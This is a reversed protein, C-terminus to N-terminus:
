KGNKRINDRAFAVQIQAQEIYHGLKAPDTAKSISDVRMEPPVLEHLRGALEALGEDDPQEGFYESEYWEEVLKKLKQKAAKAAQAMVTPSQSSRESQPTQARREDSVSSGESEVKSYVLGKAYAIGAKVESENWEKFIGPFDQSKAWLKVETMLGPGLDGEISKIWAFLANGSKPNDPFRYSENPFRHSGHADGNSQEHGDILAGDPASAVAEPEPERTYEPVGDRYLYRAVGFKACARKFADSFGSKDDDGSDAMGAYGGADQKTLVRGDPLRISLKCMVSNEMPAYDDWWNEPGLVEDLRNMATRATIYHLTRGAGGPRQKVERSGFEACLGAFIEPFQTSSM